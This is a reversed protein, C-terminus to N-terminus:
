IGDLGFRLLRYRGQTSFVASRLFVLSSEFVTLQFPIVPCACKWASPKTGKLEKIVYSSM